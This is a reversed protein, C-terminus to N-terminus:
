ILDLHTSSASPQSYTDELSVLTLNLTDLRHLNWGFETFIGCVGFLVQPIWVCDSMRHGFSSCKGKEFANLFICYPVSLGKVSWVQIDKNSVMFHSSCKHKFNIHISFRFPIQTGVRLIHSLASHGKGPGWAPQVNLVHGWVAFVAGSWQAFLGEFVGPGKVKRCAAGCGLGWFEPNRCDQKGERQVKPERNCGRVLSTGEGGPARYELFNVMSPSCIERCTCSVGKTENSTFCSSQAKWCAEQRM